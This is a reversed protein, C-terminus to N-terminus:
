SSPKTQCDAAIVAMWGDMAVLDDEDGLVVQPRDRGLTAFGM